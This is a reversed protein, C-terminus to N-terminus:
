QAKALGDLAQPLGRFSFPLPVERGAADKFQMKGNATQARYRKLVDDKLETEAFCGGPVCRRWSLELPQPDKDDAAVRV